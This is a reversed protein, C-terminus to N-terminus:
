NERKRVPQGTHMASKCITMMLTQLERISEKKHKSM